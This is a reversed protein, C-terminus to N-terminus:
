EGVRGSSKEAVRRFGVSGVLDLEAL